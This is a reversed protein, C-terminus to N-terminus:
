SGFTKDQCEQCMGSISFEKQSLLDRFDRAKQGCLVCVDERISKETDVGVFANIAQRLPYSKRTPTAM